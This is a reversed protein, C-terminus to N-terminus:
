EVDGADQGIRQDEDHHHQRDFSKQHLRKFSINGAPTELRSSTWILCLDYWAAEPPRRCTSPSIEIAKAFPSSAARTPGEPQPLVVSSRMIAPSSRSKSPLTKSGVCPLSPM